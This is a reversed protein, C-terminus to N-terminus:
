VISEIGHVQGDDPDYIVHLTVETGCPVGVFAGHPTSGIDGKSTYRDVSLHCAMERFSEAEDKDPAMPDGWAEYLKPVWGGNKEFGDERKGVFPMDVLCLVGSEANLTEDYACFRNRMHQPPESETMASMLEDTGLVFHRVLNDDDFEAFASWGGKKVHSLTFRNAGDKDAVDMVSLFGSLVDFKKWDEPFRSM